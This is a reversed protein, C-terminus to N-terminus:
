RPTSGETPKHQQQDAEYDSQEVFTGGIIQKNALRRNNDFMFDAEIRNYCRQGVMVKHVHFTDSKSDGGEGYQVSLDNLRNIRVQIVEGCRACRVYYYLGADDGSKPAGAFARALNRFLNM